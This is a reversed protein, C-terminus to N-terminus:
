GETALKVSSTNYYSPESKVWVIRKVSYYSSGTLVHVAGVRRTFEPWFPYSIGSIYYATSNAYLSYTECGGQELHRVDALLAGHYEVM